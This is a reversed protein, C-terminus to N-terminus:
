PSPTIRDFVGSHKLHLSVMPEIQLWIMITWKLHSFTTKKTCKWHSFSAPRLLRYFALLDPSRTLLRVKVCITKRTLRSSAKDLLSDWVCVCVCLFHQGSSSLVSSLRDTKWGEQRKMTNIQDKLTTKGSVESWVQDMVIRGSHGRLCLFTSLVCKM